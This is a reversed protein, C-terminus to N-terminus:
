YVAADLKRIIELLHKRYSKADLTRAKTGKVAGELILSLTLHEEETLRLWAHSMRLRVM